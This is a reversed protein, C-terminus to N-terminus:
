KNKELFERYWAQTHEAQSDAYFSESFLVYGGHPACVTVDIHIVGEGREETAVPERISYGDYVDYEAGDEPYITSLHGEKADALMAEALARRDESSTPVATLGEGSYSYVDIINEPWAFVAPLGDLTRGTVDMMKGFVTEPRSLLTRIKKNASGWNGYLRTMQTGNKLTYTVSGYSYNWGQNPREQVVTKHADLIEAIDAPDTFVAGTREYNLSVAVVDAAEPVRDELGLPDLDTLFMSGAFVLAIIGLGLFSRLSFVAVKRQLMMKGGFYGAVLGLALFLYANSGVNFLMDSLLYLVVGTGVAFITQMIPTLGRVALFDGASELKRHKYLVLGGVAAAIGVAACIAAYAWSFQMDASLEPFILYDTDSYSFNMAMLARVPSFNDLWYVNVDIGYLLPTYLQDIAFRVLLALFQVIAYMMLAAFRNDVLQCCLLGTGFFFLFTLTAYLLWWFPITGFRTSYMVGCVLVNPVFSFLFGSLAHSGYWGERCLPMAHLANCLRANYLDSSLLVACAGGYILNVVAMADICGNWQGASRSYGIGVTLLMVLMAVCYCAWLPAYRTIDKRVVAWKCYSKRSPM